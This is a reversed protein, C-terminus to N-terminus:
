VQGVLQVGEQDALLIQPWFSCAVTLTQSSHTALCFPFARGRSPPERGPRRPSRLHNELERSVLGTGLFVQRGERPRVRRSQSIPSASQGRGHCSCPPVGPGPSDERDKGSVGPGASDEWDRGSVVPGPSDEWDRRSVGPGLNDERDKGSVDPKLEAEVAM